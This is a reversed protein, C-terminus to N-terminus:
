ISCTKICVKRDLSGCNKGGKSLFVLIGLTSVSTIRTTADTFPNRTRLGEDGKSRPLSILRIAKRKKRKKEKKGRFNMRITDNIFERCLCPRSRTKRPFFLLFAERNERKGFTERAKREFAKDLHLGIAPPSSWRATM